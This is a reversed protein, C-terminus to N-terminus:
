EVPINKYGYLYVYMETLGTLDDNVIAELKDLTGRGIRIGNPIFEGIPLTVMQADTSGTWNIVEFSDAGDGFPRGAGSQVIVQGGTKAKEILFTETGAETLKLDWGNALANVHGFDKHNVASDAIIITVQMIHIDYDAHAEVYFSEPTVSGDVRMNLVGSNLGADGLRGQFYQQKNVQGTPPAPQTKVSVMLARDRVEAKQKSKPDQIHNNVAM